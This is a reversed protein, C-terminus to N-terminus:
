EKYKGVLAAIDRRIEDRKRRLDAVETQMDAVHKKNANIDARVQALQTLSDDRIKANEAAQAKAEEVIKKAEQSARDLIEQRKKNAETVAAEIADQQVKVKAQMEAEQAKLRDIRTQTEDGAQELSALKQLEPVADMIGKFQQAMRNLNDVAAQKANM